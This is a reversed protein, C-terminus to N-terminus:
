NNGRPTPKFSSAVHAFTAQYKAILQSAPAICVLRYMVGGSPIAYQIVSDMGNLGPRTYTVFVFRRGDIEKVQQEFHQGAPDRQKTAIAEQEALGADIENKTLPVVLRMQELVISATAQNTKTKEAVTLLIGGYGPVVQWNKPLEISFTNWPLKALSFDKPKPSPHFWPDSPRQSQASAGASTMLAVLSSIVVLRHIM